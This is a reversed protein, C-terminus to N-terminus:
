LPAILLTLPHINGKLPYIVKEQVIIIPQCHPPLKRGELRSYVFVYCLVGNAVATLNIIIM